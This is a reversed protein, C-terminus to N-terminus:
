GSQWRSQHHGSRDGRSVVCVRCRCVDYRALGSVSFDLQVTM